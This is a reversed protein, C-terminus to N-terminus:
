LQFETKWLLSMVGSSWPLLFVTPRLTPHGCSLLNPCQPHCKEVVGPHLCAAETHTRVAWSPPAKRCRGRGEEVLLQGGRSAQQLVWVEGTGPWRGTQRLARATGELYKTITRRSEYLWGQGKDSGCGSAAVAKRRKKLHM